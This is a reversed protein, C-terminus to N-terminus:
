YTTETERVKVLNQKDEIDTVSVYTPKSSIANSLESLESDTTINQTYEPTFENTIENVPPTTVSSSGGDFEQNKITAIQVAGAAVAAAAALGGLVPGVYPISSLSNYAGMAASATNVITSAIQLKKVNEFKKKAEDETIKGDKVEQKIQQEQLSAFSTLLSSVSQMGQQMLEVRKDRLDALQQEAEDQAALNDLHNQKTANDIEMEAEAIRRKAELYEQSDEDYAELIKKNEAIIGQNRTITDDLVANNYDLTRQLWDKINDGTFLNGINKLSEFYGKISTIREPLKKEAEEMDFDIKLKALNQKSADEIAKLKKSVTDKVTDLEAQQSQLAYQKDLNLRANDYKKHIETKANVSSEELKQIEANYTSQNIKGERFLKGLEEKRKNTIKDVQKIEDKEGEELYKKNIGYAETIVKKREELTQAQKKNYETIFNNVENILKDAQANKTSFITDELTVKNKAIIDAVKKLHAKTLNTTDQDYKKYLALNEEYRKKELELESMLAEKSANEISAIRELDSKKINNNINDIEKDAQKLLKLYEVLSDVLIKFSQNNALKRQNDGLTDVTVNTEKMILNIDELSYGMKELTARSVTAYKGIDKISTNVLESVDSVKQLIKTQNDFVQLKRATNIAEDGVGKIKLILIDISDQVNKDTLEKNFEELEDKSKMVESTYDKQKGILKTVWKYIDEWHAAIEGLITVVLGIGTAALAKKIGKLGTTATQTTAKIVPILNKINGALQGVIGGSKSLGGLAKDFAKEFANSYDGVNRKFNGTSADLEKLQNNIELIKEGLKSREAADGTARWQKQLERMTAVLNDYSGTVSEGKGKAVDMVENLKEQSSRLEDAIKKYEETGKELGLLKGKLDEIHQKFDKINTIAGGTDVTLVTTKIDSM